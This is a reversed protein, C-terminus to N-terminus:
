GPKRTVFLLFLAFGLFGLIFGAAAQWFMASRLRRALESTESDGRMREWRDLVYGLTWGRRMRQALAEPLLGRVAIFLHPAPITALWPVLGGTYWGSRSGLPEPANAIRAAADDAARRARDARVKAIRQDEFRDLREVFNLTALMGVRQAVPHAGDNVWRIMAIEVATVPRARDIWIPYRIGRVVVEDEGGDFALRQDLYVNSLSRVVEALEEGSVWDMLRQLLPEAVGFSRRAQRGVALVVASRIRPHAEARLIHQLRDFGEQMSLPADEGYEMEGYTFALAMVLKDRHTLRHPNVSAPRDRDCEAHWTNLTTKVEHPLTRAAYALAAGVAQTLSFDNALDHLFGRLQRLHRGAAAPLTVGAFRQRM